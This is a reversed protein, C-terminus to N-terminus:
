PSSTIGHARWYRDRLRRKYLKGAPSRPLEREFDVTRPCKQKSIRAQCFAILERELEPGAQDWDLPQVVAKVEEGLEENPVGIVAVDAVAPHQILVDETEQPYINVGGVIIMFDKRDTLYLYGDDDLYGVDGVTAYGQKSYARATKDPDHHYEIPRGGETYVVGVHGPPLENHDDDLIHIKGIVARGVSGPHELWEQPSIYTIGGGESGGYYEHVIPGWWDMMAQKVPVPCPAAAHIAVRHSSLDFRNRDAEPLRLMRVFMTPVWQSVTVRHREIQRLAELPDFREMIVCTGGLRTMAMCFRLPAAHYLPAGPSLYVADADMGFLRFMRLTGPPADAPAWPPLPQKGGKPRGTTGSSYIMDFGEAEDRVPTVAQAALVQPGESGEVEADVVVVRVGELGAVVQQTLAAHRLSTFVVRAGSDAVVYAMEDRTLHWNIPSYYLGSRQAGWCVELYRPHNEMVVAVADGRGLGASRLYRAIQNSREDLQRYTVVEGSEAMVYAAKDPTLKAWTGPYM